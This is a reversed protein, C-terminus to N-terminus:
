VLDSTPLTLHTYSVSADLHEFPVQSGRVIKVGLVIACAPQKSGIIRKDGGIVGLRSAVEGFRVSRALLTTFFM